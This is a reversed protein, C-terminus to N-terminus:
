EASSCAQARALGQQTHDPERTFVACSLMRTDQHLQPSRMEDSGHAPPGQPQHLAM